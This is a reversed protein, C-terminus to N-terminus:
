RLSEVRIKSHAEEDPLSLLKDWRMHTQSKQSFAGVGSPNIVGSGPEQRM